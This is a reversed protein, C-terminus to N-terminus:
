PAHDKAWRVELGDITANLARLQRRCADFRASNIEHNDLIEDPGYPSAAGPGASGKEARATDGFLPKGDSATWASDYLGVFEWTLRLAVAGRPVVLGGGAPASIQGAPAPGCDAVALPTGSRKAADRKEKWAQRYNEAAAQWVQVSKAQGAGFERLKEMALQDRKVLKLDAADRRDSERQVGETYSWAGFSLVLLLIIGWKALLAYPGEFIALPNM